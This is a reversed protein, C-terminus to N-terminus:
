GAALIEPLRQASLQLAQADLKNKMGEGDIRSIRLRTAILHTVGLERRYRAVQERVETPTGVIAVDDISAKAAKALHAPGADAMEQMRLTLIRRVEALQEANDSVFMTRMVPMAEPLPKDAQTCAERLVALNSALDQRSEVPSALYPLGLGGVQALAKPGFAAVWLPPHPRQVPLPALVVPQAGDLMVLEDGAWARCMIALSEAFIARKQRMPIGFASYTPAQYGRGLGLILRGNSLQDLVAVQEAAQLPHRLPLLYSTTGLAIRETTAAMMALLMLPDPLAGRGSFHNEPLWISAYGYKEALRAQEAMTSTNMDWPTLGLHLPQGVTETM